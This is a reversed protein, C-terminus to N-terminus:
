PSESTGSDERQTKLNNDHIPDRSLPANLFNTPNKSTEIRLAEDDTLTGEADVILVQYDVYSPSGNMNLSHVAQGVEVERNTEVYVEGCKCELALLRGIRALLRLHAEQDGVGAVTIKVVPKSLRM